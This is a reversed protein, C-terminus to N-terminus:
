RSLISALLGVLPTNYCTPVHWRGFALRLLQQEGSVCKSCSQYCRYLMYFSASMLQSRSIYLYLYLYLRHYGHYYGSTHPRCQWGDREYSLPTTIKDLFEQVGKRFGAFLSVLCDQYVVTSYSGKQRRENQWLEHACTKMRVFTSVKNTPKM